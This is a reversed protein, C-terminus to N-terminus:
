KSDGPKGFLDEYFGVQVEDTLIDTQAFLCKGKNLLENMCDNCLSINMQQLFRSGGLDPVRIVQMLLNEHEPQYCYCVNCKFPQESFLRDFFEAAAELDELDIEDAEDLINQRKAKESKNRDEM